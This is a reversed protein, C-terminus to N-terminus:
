CGDQSAITGFAHGPLSVFTIPDRAPANCQSAARNQAVTATSLLVLFGIQLLLTTKMREKPNM